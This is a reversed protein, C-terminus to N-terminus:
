DGRFSFSCIFVAKPPKRKRQLLDVYIVNNNQIYYLLLCTAICTTMFPLHRIKHLICLRMKKLMIRYIDLFNEVGQQFSQQFRPKM